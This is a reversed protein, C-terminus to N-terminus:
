ESESRGGARGEGRLASPTQARDRPTLRRLIEDRRAMEEYKPGGLSLAKALYTRAEELRHTSAEVVALHYWPSPNRPAVEAARLFAERAEDLRGESLYSVGLNHYPEPSDPNVRAARRFFTRGEEKWGHRDHAIGVRILLSFDEPAGTVLRRYLELAAQTEGVGEMLQALELQTNVDALHVTRLRNLETRAESLNGRRRLLKALNLRLVANGPDLRVAIRHEREAEELRGLGELAMAAGNHGQASGPRLEVLREFHNLAEAYEGRELLLSGLAARAVTLDPDSALALRYLSDPDGGHSSLLLGKQYLALAHDPRIALLQDFLNLAEQQEGRQAKLFALSYLLEPEKRGLSVAKEYEVIAHDFEHDREFAQARYGAAVAEPSPSFPAESWPFLLPASFSWFFTTLAALLLFWRLAVWRTSVGSLTAVLLVLGLAPTSVLHPVDMGYWLTLGLLGGAVLGSGKLVAGLLPIRRAEFPRLETLVQIACLVTAVVFAAYHVCLSAAFGLLMEVLGLGRLERVRFHRVSMMILFTGLVLAMAALLDLPRTFAQRFTNRHYFAHAGAAIGVAVALPEQLPAVRWCAVWLSRSYARLWLTLLAALNFVDILALSYSYRNSFHRVISGHLIFTKRTNSEIGLWRFLELYLGPKMALAVAVIYICFFGLAARTLSRSYHYIYGAALVCGLFYEIRVGPTILRGRAWPNFFAAFVWGPRQTAPVYGIVKAESGPLILDLLPPLLILVWPYLILRTPKVVPIRAFVGLLLALAILAVILAFPYHLVYTGLEPLPIGGSFSELVNRVAILSFLGCLWTGLSVPRDQLKDAWVFLRSFM